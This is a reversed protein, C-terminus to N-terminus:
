GTLLETYPKGDFTTSVKAGYIMLGAGSLHFDDPVDEAIGRLTVCITM